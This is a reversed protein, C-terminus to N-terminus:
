KVKLIEESYAKNLVLGVQLRIKHVIALILKILDIAQRSLMINNQCHFSSLTRALLTQGVM